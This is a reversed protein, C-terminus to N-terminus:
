YLSTCPLIELLWQPTHMSTIGSSPLLHCASGQPESALWGVRNTLNWVLSLDQGWLCPQCCRSPCCRINVEPRCEYGTDAGFSCQASSARWTGKLLVWGSDGCRLHVPCVCRWLGQAMSSLGPPLPVFLRSNRLVDAQTSTEKEQLRTLNLLVPSM